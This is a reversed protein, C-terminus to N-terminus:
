DNLDEDPLSFYFTAGENEKGEAWVKGSHKAVVRQVIALGVGIGEFEDSGHLRQFVGFLKDYYKMNFGAGNDKVYYVTEEDKKISGIEITPKPNKSSYKVANSVLNFVVQKLMERDGTSEPIDRIHFMLKNNSKRFEDAVSSFLEHMDVRAKSLPRKGLRSFELLNDILQGMKKTNKLIEKLSDDIDETLETGLDRKLIESFGNIARLPSRLDHSVSYTFSELEKNIAALEETREAVKKELTLNLNYLDLEAMKQPTIDRSIVVLRSVDGNDSLVPSMTSRFFLVGNHTEVATDFADSIKTSVVRELCAKIAQANDSGHLDVIKRGVLKSTDPSTVSHNVALIEGERNLLIIHDKSSEFIIRYREEGERIMENKEQFYAEAIGYMAYDTFKCVGDFYDLAENIDTFDRKILPVIMEKAMKILEYWDTYRIRMRAYMRGQQLLDKAYEEWKGEYIAARQLEQSRDQQAKQIEPTMSQMMPGFVPHSKLREQLELNLEKQYRKNYEFYKKLVAIEEGSFNPLVVADERTTVSMM